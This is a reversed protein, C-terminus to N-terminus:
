SIKRIIEPDGNEEIIVPNEGNLHPCRLTTIISKDATTKIEITVERNRRMDDLGCLHMVSILHHPLSPEVFCQAEEDRFPIIECRWNCWSPLFEARYGHLHVLMGLTLQEVTFIRGKRLAKIILNQWAGWHPANGKIAFVGANLVPHTCLERAIKGSFARKANGYYFSRLKKVFPGLWEVRMTKQMNRDVQPCIALAGKQVARILLDVAEETQLWTDCDMWIYIDYGPFIKPIFPRCICSKLYDRGRIKWSPIKCPWDPKVVKCGRQELKECQAPELGADFICIDKDSLGPFRQLSAVWEILLPFYNKDASSIFAVKGCDKANVDKSM